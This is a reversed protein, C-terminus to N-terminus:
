LRGRLSRLAGACPASIRRGGDNIGFMITVVTPNYAIVDRELRSDASGSQAEEPAIASALGFACFPNQRGPFRTAAFTEIFFPICGKQNTISDGEYFVVTDGDKLNSTQNRGSRTPVM